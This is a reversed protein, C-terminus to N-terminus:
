VILKEDHLQQLIPKLMKCPGCWTATITVLKKM